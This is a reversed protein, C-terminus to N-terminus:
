VQRYVSFTLRGRRATKDTREWAVASSAAGFVADFATCAADAHAAVLTEGYGMKSTSGWTREVVFSPTCPDFWNTPISM